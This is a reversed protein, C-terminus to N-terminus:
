IAALFCMLLTIETVQQTAGLVDGTQGKIKAFALRMCAWCAVGLCMVSLPAILLLPIGAILMAMLATKRSPQGTAKSLGDRRAHPMKHMMYPLVGRSAAAALPLAWPAVTLLEAFLAVRLGASLVLALVGYTGIRSDRMIELRRELTFGGWFGDACDALGDEHLAGTLFLGFAVVVFATVAAPLGVWLLAMGVWMSLLGVGFGVVPYAWAAEAQRHSFDATIPLRTLLATARKLDALM